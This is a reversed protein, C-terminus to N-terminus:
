ISLINKIKYLRNQKPKFLIVMSVVKPRPSFCNQSVLFKDVLKLRFSSLISLRGYNRSLYKGLIKEGLEKQFM